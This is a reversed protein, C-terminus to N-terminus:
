NRKHSRIQHRGAKFKAGSQGRRQTCTHTHAFVVCLSSREQPAHWSGRGVPQGKRPQLRQANKSQKGQQRSRAVCCGTCLGDKEDDELLAASESGCSGEPAPAAGMCSTLWPRSSNSARMPKGEKNPVWGFAVALAAAEADKSSVGDTPAAIGDASMEGGGSGGVESLPWKKSPREVLRKPLGILEFVCVVAAAAAPVASRTVDFIADVLAVVVLVVVGM